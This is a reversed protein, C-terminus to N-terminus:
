PPPGLPILARRIVVGQDADFAERIPRFGAAELRLTKPGPGVLVDLPTQGKAEGDILVTSEPQTDVFLHGPAPHPPAPDRIVYRTGTTTPSSPAPGPM